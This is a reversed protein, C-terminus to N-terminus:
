QEDEPCKKIIGKIQKLGAIFGSCFVADELTLKSANEDRDRETFDIEQQIVKLVSEKQM